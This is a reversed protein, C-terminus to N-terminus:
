KGVVPVAIDIEGRQVMTQNWMITPRITRLVQERSIGERPEESIVEDPLGANFTEGQRDIIRIGVEGLSAMISELAHNIKRIEQSSLGTKPEKSEPDLLAGAIRWAQNSISALGKFVAPPFAFVGGTNLQIEGASKRADPPQIDTTEFERPAQM